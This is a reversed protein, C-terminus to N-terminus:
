DALHPGQAAQFEHRVLDRALSQFIKRRKLVKLLQAKPMALFERVSKLVKCRQFFQPPEVQSEGPERVVAELLQRRKGRQLLKVEAGYRVSCQPVGDDMQRM